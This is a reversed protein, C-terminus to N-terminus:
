SYMNFFNNLKSEINLIIKDREMKKFSSYSMTKGRLM